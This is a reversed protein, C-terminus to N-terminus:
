MSYYQRTHAFFVLFLAAAVRVVHLLGLFEFDFRLRSRLVWFVVIVSLAM